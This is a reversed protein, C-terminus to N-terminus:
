SKGEGPTPRFICLGGPMAAQYKVTDEGSCCVGSAVGAALNEPLPIIKVRFKLVAQWRQGHRPHREYKGEGTITGQRIRDEKFDQWSGELLCIYGRSARGIMVKCHGSTKHGYM